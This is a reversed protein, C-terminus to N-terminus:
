HGVKVAHTKSWLTQLMKEGEDSHVEALTLVCLPVIYHQLSSVWIQM